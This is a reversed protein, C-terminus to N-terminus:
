GMKNMFKRLYLCSMTNESMRPRRGGLYKAERNDIFATHIDAFYIREFAIDQRLLCLKHIIRALARDSVYAFEIKPRLCHV